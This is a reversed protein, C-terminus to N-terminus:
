KKFYPIQKYNLVVAAVATVVSPQLDFATQNILLRYVMAELPREAM